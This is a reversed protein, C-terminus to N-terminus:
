QADRLLVLEAHAELYKGKWYEAVSEWDTDDEEGEEEEVEEEWAGDETELKKLFTKVQNAKVELKEAIEDPTLKGNLKLIQNKQEDTLRPARM